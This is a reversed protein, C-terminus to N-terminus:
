HPFHLDSDEAAIARGRRVELVQAAHDAHQWKDLNRLAWARHPQGDIKLPRPLRSCGIEELARRMAATFEPNQGDRESLARAIEPHTAIDRPWSAVMHEANHMVLSKSANIAATKAENMPPREGPNFASIDRDRLYVGVANIFEQDNLVAYLEAYDSASRPQATHRVVRFRRDTNNMPLANDHNSFILWRVANREKYQALGKPNIKRYEATILSKLRSSHRYSNESAGEQVEDVIAFVRGALEENFQSDLLAPLDVNPAVYGRWVRALVSALWNRGTGTQSAIHLWHFHPLVGPKQETHALWDLFVGREVQDPILYAVQALFLGPDTRAPWRTTPRWSNLAKKGDPDFCIPLEGAHFTRTLVTTRRPSNRWLVANLVKQPKRQGSKASPAPQDEGDGDKTETKSAATLGSFDRFSLVQHPNSILGVNSGQGIWVADGEMQEVSVIPPLANIALDQLRANEARQQERRERRDEDSVAANNVDDFGDATLIAPPNDENAFVFLAKYHSRPKANEREWKLAATSRKRETGHLDNMQIWLAEAEADRGCAALHKLAFLVGIWEPQAGKAFRTPSLSHVARAIDRMQDDSVPEFDDDRHTAQQKPGAGGPYVPELFLEMEDIPQGQVEFVEYEVGQVRGIHFAQSFTFSEKALGRGVVGNLLAVLRAHDARTHPRSLPAIVRWRPAGSEHRSTTMVVARIGAARLNEAAEEPFFLQADYDGIVMTVGTVNEGHRVSNNASLNDGYTCGSILPLSEKTPQPVAERASQVFQSFPMTKARASRAYRDPFITFTVAPDTMGAGEVRPPRRDSHVPRHLELAPTPADIM